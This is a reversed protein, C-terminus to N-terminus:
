HREAVLRLRDAEGVIGYVPERTRDPRAVDPAGQADHAGDLRADDRHVRAVADVELHREAPELLAPDPALQARRREFVVALDLADEDCVLLGSGCHRSGVVFSVFSSSIDRLETGPISVRDSSASAISCPSISVTRATKGSM